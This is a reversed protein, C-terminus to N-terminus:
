EGMKKLNAEGPFAQEPAPRASVVGGSLPRPPNLGVVRGTASEWPHSPQLPKQKFFVSFLLFLISSPERQPGQSLLFPNSLVSSAQEWLTCIPLNVLVPCSICTIAPM